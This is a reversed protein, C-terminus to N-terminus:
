SPSFAYRAPSLTVSRREPKDAVLGIAGLQWVVPLADGQISLLTQFGALTAVTAATLAVAMENRCGMRKLLVFNSGFQDGVDPLERDERFTPERRHVAIGAHLLVPLPMFRTGGFNMGDYLPPFLTGDNAYRALAMRTGQVWGVEFRDNAHAAALTM